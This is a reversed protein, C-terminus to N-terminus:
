VLSPRWTPRPARRWRKSPATTCSFLRRNASLRLGSPGGRGCRPGCEHRRRPRLPKGRSRRGRRSPARSAPGARSAGRPPHARKRPGGMPATEAGSWKKDLEALFPSPELGAVVHVSSSARTLGVHFVRREEEVDLALRHPLLGASVDHLVVHPWERGKVRHVTSLVVGEPSGPKRLSQLLWQDFGAPEPHLGALAVLADLDDTQASRDLHRRSGELLEMAGGLGVDDRVARLIRGAAGSKPSGSRGPVAHRRVTHLDEVFGFVKESDRDKLRGALRELGALSSQEGIWEVVRPSLARSPRRAAQVVDTRALGEAPSVALRLWALAAQVGGRSLYSPDVAPRVPVDRHVLAVQVPALSANVRTLVAM